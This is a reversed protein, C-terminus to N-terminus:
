MNNINDLNDIIFDTVRWVVSGWDGPLIDGVMSIKAGSNDPEDLIERVIDQMRNYHIIDDQDEPVAWPDTIDGIRPHTLIRRVDDDTLDRIVEDETPHPESVVVRLGYPLTNLILHLRHVLSDRTNLYSVQM